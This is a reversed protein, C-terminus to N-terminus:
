FRFTKAFYFPISFIKFAKKPNGGARSHCFPHIHTKKLLKDIVPIVSFSPCLSKRWEQLFWGYSSSTFFPQKSIGFLRKFENSM